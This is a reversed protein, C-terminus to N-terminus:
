KTDTTKYALPLSVIFLSGKEGPREEVWIKGKHLRVINAVLYLGLGSGKASRDDAQGAQYFKKFISKQESPKIGIGNDAIRVLVKKKKQEFSVFIKPTESDNYKVANTFLNMLLMEFLHPNIRCVFSADPPASFTVACNKFFHRTKQYFQRIMPVLDTEVFDGAYTRGEIEALDLISGITADLRGVDSLMTHIHKVQEDRPLDHKLFTELFLRLSTVPTKLEHTFNNIFNKQLRFLQFTKLNYIFITFLGMLIIGVLISLVTIVVWTHSARIDVTNLDFREVLRNLGSSVKIYWYIYLFLSFGLAVCSSVFIMILTILWRTRNMDADQEPHFYFFAIAHGMNSRDPRIDLPLLSVPM